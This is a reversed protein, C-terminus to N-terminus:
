RVRTLVCEPERDAVGRQLAAQAKSQMKQNSYLQYLLHHVTPTAKTSAYDELAALAKLESGPTRQLYSALSFAIVRVRCFMVYARVVSRRM